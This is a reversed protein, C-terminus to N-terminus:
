PLVRRVGVAAVVPDANATILTGQAPDVAPPIYRPSQSASAIRGGVGDGPLALVAFVAPWRM